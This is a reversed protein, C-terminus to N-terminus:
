RYFRDIVKEGTTAEESGGRTNLTGSGVVLNFLLMLAQTAAGGSGTHVVRYLSDVHEGELSKGGAALFPHARNVGALLASLLRSKMGGESSSESEDKSKLSAAVEFLKFYTTVLSLPLSPEGRELKVQNLFIVCNYVGQNSLNPRHCLQQVERCVVPTMAPHAQLVRRLQHGASAASKKSPDGLKNSVLTLLHSENEPAACLLEVTTHLAFKKTSDINDSLWTSILSVFSSYRQKLLEEYRWLLLVRPSLTAPPSRSGQEQVYKALPRQAMAFLKRDKPLLNNVFLDLMANGVMTAIRKEKTALLLLQDLIDLRHVPSGTILLIMAAIRDSLTAGGGSRASKEVWQEDSSASGSRHARFAVLEKELEADALQRYQLVLSPDLPRVGPQPSAADPLVEDRGAVSSGLM